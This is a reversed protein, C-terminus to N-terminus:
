CNHIQHRVGKEILPYLAHMYAWQVTSKKGCTAVVCAALWVHLWWVLLRGCMCGGCLYGVM